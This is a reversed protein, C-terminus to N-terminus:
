IVGSVVWLFLGFVVLCFSEGEIKRSAIRRKAEQEEKQKQQFEELTLAPIVKTDDSEEQTGSVEKKTL